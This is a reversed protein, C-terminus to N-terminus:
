TGDFTNAVWAAIVEAYQHVGSPSPHLMDGNDLTQMGTDADTSVVVESSSFGTVQNLHAWIPIVKVQANALTRKYKLIARIALGYSANWRADAAAMRPLTPLGVAIKVTPVAALISPVMIALAKNIWDAAVSPTYNAIDNTGLNIFVHTPATLATNALFYSFDFVRGNYASGAPDGGTAARTFPDFTQKTAATAALYSAWNTVPTLYSDRARIHDTFTSGPRGENGTPGITGSMTVTMGRAALTVRIYESLTQSMISDGIGMVRVIGTGSAAAKHVTIPASRYSRGLAAGGASDSYRHAWINAVDGIEAPDVVFSGAELTLEYPKAATDAVNPKPALLTTLVGKRETRHEFINDIHLSQKRGTILWLDEGYLIAPLPDIATTAAELNTVRITTAATTPFDNREIWQANQGFAFQAGAIRVENTGGPTSVGVQVFVYEGAAPNNATWDPMPASVSYIAALASLTKELIFQVSQATGDAKIFRVTRAAGFDGGVTGEVWIRAFFTKGARNDPIRDGIYPWTAAANITRLARTFGLAILAPDAVDVMALNTIESEWVSPSHLLRDGKGYAFDNRGLAESMRGIHPWPSYFENSWSWGIVLGLTPDVTFPSGGGATVEVTNTSFKYWYTIAATGSSALSFEEYRDTAAVTHTYLTGESRVTFSPILVKNAARDHVIPFTTVFASLASPPNLERFRFPSWWGSLGPTPFDIIPVVMDAATTPLTFEGATAGIVKYTSDSRDLYVFCRVGAPIALKAWGPKETSNANGVTINSAAQGPMDVFINRPIYIQGVGGGLMGLRDIFGEGGLVVVRRMVNHMLDVTAKLSQIRDTGAIWQNLADNYVWVTPFNNAPTPDAWLLAPQGDEQTLDADMAAKNPYTEMGAATAIAEIYRGWRRVDAKNPEHVTGDPNYDAWIEDVNPTAM